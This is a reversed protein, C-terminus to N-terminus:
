GDIADQYGRSAPEISSPRLIYGMAGARRLLGLVRPGGILLVKTWADATICRRAAVSVSVDCAAAFDKRPDVIASGDPSFYGASTAVAGSRLEALPLLIGPSTPHRVHILRPANGFARLDGGANVLGSHMNARRLSAVAQDVAFGKAIGGLDVLLPRAFRVRHGPLLRVDRFNAGRPLDAFPASRPLLGRRVLNSAVTVDFLGHSLLAVRQAEHLVAWTWPHVRVARRQAARNIRSVDSYQEHFSM